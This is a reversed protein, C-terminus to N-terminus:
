DLVWYLLLVQYKFSDGLLPYKLSTGLISTTGSVKNMYRVSINYRYAKFEKATSSSIRYPFTAHLKRYLQTPDANPAIRAVLPVIISARELGM